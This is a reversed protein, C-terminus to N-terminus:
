CQADPLALDTQGVDDAALAALKRQVMTVTANLSYSRRGVSVGNIGGLIIKFGDEENTLLTVPETRPPDSTPDTDDEDDDPPRTWGFRTLDKVPLELGEPSTRRVGDAGDGDPRERT